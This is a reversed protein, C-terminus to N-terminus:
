QARMAAGTRTTGFNPPAGSDPPNSFPHDSMVNVLDTRFQSALSHVTDPGDDQGKLAIWASSAPWKPV